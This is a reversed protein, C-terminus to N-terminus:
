GHRYSQKRSSILPISARGGDFATFALISVGNFIELNMKNLNPMRLTAM